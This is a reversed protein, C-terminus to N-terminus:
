NKGAPKAEIQRLARRAVEKDSPYAYGETVERLDPIAEAAAPGADGLAEIAMLRFSSNEKIIDMLALHAEHDTPVVDLVRAAADFRATEDKSQLLVKLRPLYTEVGQGLKKLAEATQTGLMANTGEMAQLLAPIAAKANPGTEGLQYAAIWRENPPSHLTLGNTLCALADAQAPDLRLLAAALYCKSGWNTEGEFLKRVLPIAPAAHSAFKGIATATEGGYYNTGVQEELLEILSPVAPAARPGIRALSQIAVLRTWGNTEKLAAELYPVVAEAGDGVTGLIALSQNHEFINTSKLHGQMLSLIQQAAPKIEQLVLPADNLQRGANLPRPLGWSRPLGNLFRTISRKVTSYDINFSQELLYPVANSGLHQFAVVSEKSPIGYKHSNCYEKFWYSVPKGEYEPERSAYGWWGLAALMGALIFAPLLRRM